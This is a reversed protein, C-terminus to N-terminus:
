PMSTGCRHEYLYYAFPCRDNGQRSPVNFSALNRLDLVLASLRKKQITHAHTTSQMCSSLAPSLEYWCLTEAFTCKNKRFLLYKVM